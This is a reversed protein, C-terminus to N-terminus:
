IVQILMNYEVNRDPNFNWILHQESINLGRKRLDMICQYAGEVPHKGDYENGFVSKENSSKLIASNVIPIIHSNMKKLYDMVKKTDPMEGQFMQESINHTLVTVIYSLLSMLQSHVGICAVVDYGGVPLLGNEALMREDTYLKSGLRMVEELLIMSYMEPKMCNEQSKIKYLIGSCFQEQDADTIGTVSGKKITIRDRIVEPLWDVASHMAADDIDILTIHEFKESLELLDIDNCAGAGVIAISLGGDKYVPKMKTGTFGEQIREYRVIEQTVNDSLLKTLQKRYEGWDSYAGPMVFKEKIQSYISM